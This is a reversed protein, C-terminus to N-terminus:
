KVATMKRFAAPFTLKGDVYKYIVIKTQLNEIQDQTAMELQFGDKIWYNFLDGFYVETENEGTGLNAPIDQSELLPKGMLEDLPMNPQFIPREDSDKLSHILQAGKPSTIFQATRRYQAPLGFYLSLIDDYTLGTGAQPIDTIGLTQRIGLPKGAGDGNVFAAEEKETIAKAALTAVFKTVNQASTRLLKWSVKILAAVGNDDLSVKGTTPNSETVPANESVWYGVVGTGETPVDLKGTRNFVFAYQRIIQWRQTQAVIEDYLETPVVTGFSGSSTDIAKVGYEKHLNAPLILSKIFNASVEYGKAKRSAEDQVEVPLAKMSFKGDDGMPIGADKMGELTAESILEKLNIEEGNETQLVMEKAQEKEKVKEM